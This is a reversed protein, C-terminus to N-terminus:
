AMKCDTGTTPVDFYVDEPTLGWGVDKLWRAIAYADQQDVTRGDAPYRRRLMSPFGGAIVSKRKQGGVGDWAVDSPSKAGGFRSDHAWAGTLGALDLGHFRTEPFEDLTIGDPGPAGHNARVQKWASEFNAQDVIREMLNESKTSLTPQEVAASVSKETQLEPEHSPGTAENRSLDLPHETTPRNSTM